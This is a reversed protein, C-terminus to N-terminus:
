CVQQEILILRSRSVTILTCKKLFNHKKRREMQLDVSAVSFTVTGSVIVDQTALANISDSFRPKPTIFIGMSTFFSNDLESKMTM